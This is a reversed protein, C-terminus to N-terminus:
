VKVDKSDKIERTERRDQFEMLEMGVGTVRKELSAMTVERDQKIISNELM